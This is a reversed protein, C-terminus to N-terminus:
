KGSGADGDNPWCLLNRCTQGVGCPNSAGCSNAKCPDIGNACRWGTVCGSADYVEQGSCWNCSPLRPCSSGSSGGSGGSGDTGGTDGAGGDNPWCLMNSCTQGDPCPAFASCSSTKCPDIGNACRYGAVCGNADKLTEGGCWNCSLAPMCSSSSGSAGGAGTAGGSGGTGGKGSGGSNGGGAIAGGDPTKACLVQNCGCAVFTSCDFGAPCTASGSPGILSYGSPCYLANCCMSSATSSGGVGGAGTVGGGGTPVINGGQATTGGPSGGTNGAVAADIASLGGGGNGGVVTSVSTSGAGPSAADPAEGLEHTNGGCSALASVTILSVLLRHAHKITM